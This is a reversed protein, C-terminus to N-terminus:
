SLHGMNLQRPVGVGLDYMLGLGYEGLSDKREVLFKFERLATEYDGREFAAIGNEYSGLALLPTSFFILSIFVWIFILVVRKM